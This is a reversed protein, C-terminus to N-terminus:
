ASEAIEGTQPNITRRRTLLILVTAVVICEPRSAWPHIKNLGQGNHEGVAADLLYTRALTSETGSVVM